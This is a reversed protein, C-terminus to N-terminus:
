DTDTHIRRIYAAFGPATFTLKGHSDADIIGKHMLSARVPGVSSSGVALAQAVASRAVAADGLQAMAAIFRQETPTAKEWRARFLANMDIAIAERAEVM